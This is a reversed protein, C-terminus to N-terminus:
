VKLTTGLANDYINNKEMAANFDTLMMGAGVVILIAAYPMQHDIVALIISILSLVLILILTGKSEGSLYTAIAYIILVVVQILVIVIFQGILYSSLGQSLVTIISIVLFTLELILGLILVKHGNKKM